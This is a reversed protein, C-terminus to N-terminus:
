QPLKAPDLGQGLNLVFIPGIELTQKAGGVQLLASAGGAPLDVTAIGSVTYINWGGPAIKAERTCITTWPEKAMSVNIQSILGNGDATDAEVLRVFVAMVVADGKNIAGSVPMSLGADWPKDAKEAVVTRLATGGPADAVSVPTATLVKGYSYPQKGPDAILKGPAPLKARLKKLSEAFRAEPDLPAAQATPAPAAKKNGPLKSLDYNAGLDVVFAPGLEVVQTEAALMVSMGIEGPEYDRDAIGKAYYMAWKTGVDASDNFLGTYPAKSLSVGISTITATTKGKAPEEARMWIAVFLVDGKKVPKVIQMSAQADWPNQGKSAIARIKSGGPVTQDKKLFVQAGWVNWASAAPINVCKDLISADEKQDKASPEAQASAVVCATAAMAALVINRLKAM